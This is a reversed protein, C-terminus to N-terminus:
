ALDGHVVLNLADTDKVNNGYINFNTVDFSSATHASNGSVPTAYYDGGGGINSSTVIFTNDVMSSTFHIESKGTATDTVSSVNFSNDINAAVQDFLCTAKAASQGTLEVPGGSATQIVDVNLTM